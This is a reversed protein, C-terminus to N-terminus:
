LVLIVPVDRALADRALSGLRERARAADPPVQSRLTACLAHLAAAEFWTEEAEGLLGTAIRRMAEDVGARVLARWDARTIPVTQFRQEWDAAGLDRGADAGPDWPALAHGLLPDLPV